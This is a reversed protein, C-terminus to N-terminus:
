EIVPAYTCRCFARNRDQLRHTCERCPVPMTRLAEAITLVKKNLLLCSTCSDDAALVEVKKIRSRKYRQLAARAAQQRVAFCDEGEENLFLAMSYYLGDLSEQGDRNASKMMGLALRNFIEWITGHDSARVGLKESREEKRIEFDRRTVGYEELVGLWRNLYRLRDRELDIRKAEEETVLLRQNDSLRTRVFIYQGCSACKKKRRPALKLEVGCHPCSLPAESPTPSALATSTPASKIAPSHSSTPEGEKYELHQLKTVLEAAERDSRLGALSRTIRQFEVSDAIRGDCLMRRAQNKDHTIGFRRVLTLLVSVGAIGLLLGCLISILAEM